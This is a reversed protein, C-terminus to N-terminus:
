PHPSFARYQKGPVTCGRGEATGDMDSHSERSIRDLQFEGRLVPIRHKSCMSMVHTLREGRIKYTSIIVASVKQSNLIAAIDHSVGLIRVRHMTFDRLNPNDDVFGIPRLGLTQNDKLEKLISKGRRGAGYILVPVAESVSNRRGLYIMIRDRWRLTTGTKLLAIEEHDLRRVCIYMVVMMTLLIAGVRHYQAVVLVLALISMGLIVIGRKERTLIFKL